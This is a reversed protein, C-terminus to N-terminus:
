ALQRNIIKIVERAVKQPDSSTINFTNTIGINRTEQTTEPEPEPTRAIPPQIVIPQTSYTPPQPNRFVDKLKEVFEDQKPTKINTAQSVLRAAAKSVEGEAEKLPNIIGQALPRGVRAIMKRSPSRSDAARRAAELAREVARRAQSAIESIKSAIGSAIGGALSSGVGEGASSASGRLGSVNNIANNITDSTRGPIPSIATTWGSQMNMGAETFSGVMTDGDTRVTSVMSSFNSVTLSNILNLSNDANGRMTTFSRSVETNMTESSTMAERSLEQFSGRVNASTVSSSSTLNTQLQEFLSTANTTLTTFSQTSAQETEAGKSRTTGTIYDWLGRTREEKRKTEAAHHSTMSSWLSNWFSGTADMQTRFESIANLFNTIAALQDSVWPGLVNEGTFTVIASGLEVIKEILWVIADILFFIFPNQEQIVTGFSRLGDMASMMTNLEEATFIVKSIGDWLFSLADAVEGLDWRFGQAGEGWARFNMKNGLEEFWAGLNQWVSGLDSLDLNMGLIKVETSLWNAEEGIWGMMQGFENFNKAAQSTAESGMTIAEVVGLINTKLGLWDHDFALWMAAVAVTILGIPSYLGLIAISLKLFLGVIAKGVILQVIRELMGGFFAWNDNVLALTSAIVNLVSSGDGLLSTFSTWTNGMSVFANVFSEKVNNALTILGSFVASLGSGGEVNADIDVGIDINDTIGSFKDLVGMVFDSVVWTLEGFKQGWSEILGSFMESQLFESVRLLVPKVAEWFGMMFNRLNIAWIDGFSGMLGWLSGSVQEVTDPFSTTMWTEIANLAEEGGILGKRMQEQIEVVSLGFHESLISLAPIGNDILSNVDEAMMRGRTSIIGLTRGVNTLSEDSRATATGWNVIAGTLDKAHEIPVELATLTNFLSVISLEAYPSTINIQDIWSILNKAEVGAKDWADAVSLTSDAQRMQMSVVSQMQFKMREYELQADVVSHAMNHIGDKIMKFGSYVMSYKFGDVVSSWGKFHGESKKTTKSVGNLQNQINKLGNVANEVNATIQIVLSALNAM